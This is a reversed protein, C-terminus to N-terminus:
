KIDIEIFIGVGIKIGRHWFVGGFVRVRVGVGVGMWVGVGLGVVVGVRMMGCITVGILVLGLM